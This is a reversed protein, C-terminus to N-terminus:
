QDEQNDSEPKVDGNGWFLSLINVKQSVMIMVKHWIKNLRQQFM